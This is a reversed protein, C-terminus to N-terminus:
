QRVRRVRWGDLCWAHGFDARIPPLRRIVRQRDEAKEEEDKSEGGPFGLMGWGVQNQVM